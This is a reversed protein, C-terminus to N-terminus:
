RFAGAFQTDGAISLLTGILILALVAAKAFDQAKLSGLLMPERSLYVSAAYLEEGILTYDCSTIFFPLQADSDTGAIQIAGTTNGTESLILSEAYFMGLLFNAAPRERLMIGSVAAAYGFQSYTVYYIDDQIYLDPRGIQNYSEKVIEQAVAMVIPDRNPVMLRTGYEGAKKAVQALIQVSAITAVDEMSSIGPIYMIPKGMETARGIAEDVAELGAIRRIFMQRGSRAHYTFWLLLGTFLVVGFFVAIRDTRFWQLSPTGEARALVTITSPFVAEIEYTYRQGNTLREDFFTSDGFALDARKGRPEGSGDTRFLGLSIVSEAVASRAVPEWRLTLSGGGDHPTDVVEFDIAAAGTAVLVSLFVSFASYTM